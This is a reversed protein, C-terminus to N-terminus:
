TFEQDEDDENPKENGSFSDIKQIIEVTLAKKLLRGSEIDKIMDVDTYEAILRKLYQTLIRGDQSTSLRQFLQVEQPNLKM